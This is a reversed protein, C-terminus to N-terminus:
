LQTTSNPPHEPSDFREGIFTGLPQRVSLLLLGFGVELFGEIARMEVAVVIHYLFYDYLLGATLIVFAKLGALLAVYAFVSILVFATKQYHGM